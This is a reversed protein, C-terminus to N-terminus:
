KKGSIKDLKDQMSQIAAAADRAGGEISRISPRMYNFASSATDAAAAGGKNEMALKYAAIAADDQADALDLAKRAAEAEEDSMESWFDAVNIELRKYAREIDNIATVFEMSFLGISSAGDTLGGILGGIIKGWTEVQPQMERLKKSFDEVGDGAGTLGSVLGVGFAESLEDAAIQMVALKGGLTDVAAASQGGVLRALEAMILNMDGTKLIARDLGPVLRGLSVVNGGYAKSLANSASEVTGYGGAALDLAVKLAAQAQSLNGTAGALKALAPRLITDATASAYQLDDVFKQTSESAAGMGLNELARNLATVSKEEENAAQVADVGIKIALAGAAATALGLAPGVKRLSASLRQSATASKGMANNVKNLGSIADATHAGIKIIIGPMSGAM